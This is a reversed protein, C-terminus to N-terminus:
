LAGATRASQRAASLVVEWSLTRACAVSNLNHSAGWLIAVSLPNANVWARVSEPKDDLFLDGRVLHKASTHIVHDPEIGFRGLLWQEREHCWMPAKSLPATVAFVEGLKHLEAVAAQAGPLTPLRECFGPERWRRTIEIKQTESLSFCELLDWQTIQEVTAQINYLDQLLACTAGSFDALVGDVDLLITLSM